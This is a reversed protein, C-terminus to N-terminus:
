TERDLSGNKMDRTLSAYKSTKKKNARGERACSFDICLRTHRLTGPPCLFSNPNFFPHPPSLPSPCTHWLEYMYKHHKKRFDITTHTASVLHHALHRGTPCLLHGYPLPFIYNMGQVSSAAASDITGIIRYCFHPYM